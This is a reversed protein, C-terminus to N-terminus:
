SGAPDVALRGSSYVREGAAMRFRLARREASLDLTLRFEQGPRMPATFKVFEAGRLRVIGLERAAIRVVWDLQLVGPVVFFDPFHWPWVALADPVRAELEIGSATLRKALIQLDLGSRAPRAL